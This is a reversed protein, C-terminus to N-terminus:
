ARKEWKGSESQQWYTPTAGSEKLEAWRERAEATATEDRGDFMFVCRTFDDTAERAAGDVLFLVDAGNPNGTEEATLWIPQREM